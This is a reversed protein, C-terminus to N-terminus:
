WDLCRLPNTRRRSCETAGLHDNLLNEDIGELYMKYFRLAAEKPTETDGLEPYINIGIVGRPPGDRRYTLLRVVDELHLEESINIRSKDSLLIHALM